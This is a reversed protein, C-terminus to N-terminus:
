ISENSKPKDDRGFAICSILPVSAEFVALFLIVALLLAFRNMWYLYRNTKFIIMILSGTLMGAGAISMVTGLTTVTAMSLVVPTILVSVLAM